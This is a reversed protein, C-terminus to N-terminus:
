AVASNKILKGWNILLGGPEQSRYKPSDRSLKNGTAKNALKQHGTHLLGARCAFGRLGSIIGPGARLARCKITGPLRQCPEENLKGRKHAFTRVRCSIFPFGTTM